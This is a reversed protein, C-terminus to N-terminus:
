QAKARQRRRHELLVDHVRFFAQGEGRTNWFEDEVEFDTYVGLSMLQPVNLDCRGPVQETSGCLSFLGDSIRDRKSIAVELKFGYGGSAIPASCRGHAVFVSPDRKDISHTGCIILGEGFLVTQIMDLVRLYEEEREQYVSGGAVIRGDKVQFWNRSGGPFSIIANRRDTTMIWHVPVEKGHKAPGWSLHIPVNRLVGSGMVHDASRVKELLTDVETVVHSELLESASETRVVALWLVVMISVLLSAVHRKKMTKM